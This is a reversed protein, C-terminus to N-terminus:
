SPELGLLARHRTVLMTLVKGNGISFSGRWEGKLLAGYTHYHAFRGGGVAEMDFKWKM